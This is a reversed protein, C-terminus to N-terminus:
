CVDASVDGDTDIVLAPAFLSRAMKSVASCSGLRASQQTGPRSGAELESAVRFVLPPGTTRATVCIDAYTLM